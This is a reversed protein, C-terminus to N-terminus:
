TESTVFSQTEKHKIFVNEEDLVFEVPENYLVNYFRIDECIKKMPEIDKCDNYFADFLDNVTEQREKDKKIQVMGKISDIARNKIFSGPVGVPGVVVKAAGFLLDNAKFANHDEVNDYAKIYYDSIQAEYELQMNTLEVISDNIRQKDTSGSLLLQIYKASSYLYLSCWLQPLYGNVKGIIELLEDQNKASDMSDISSSILENFLYYDSLSEIELQQLQNLVAQKEISNYQIDIVNKQIGSVYHEKAAIYSRKDAELFRSISDLKMQVYDLTKNIEHLYYQSTVISLVSMVSSVSSAAQSVDDLKVHGTIKGKADVINGTYGGNKARQLVGLGKDYTMKVMGKYQNVERFNRIMEGAVQNIEPFSELPIKIADTLDTDSDLNDIVIGLLEEIQM